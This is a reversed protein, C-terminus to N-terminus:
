QSCFRGVAGPAAVASLAAVLGVLVAEAAVVGASDVEEGAAADM